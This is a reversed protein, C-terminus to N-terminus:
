DGARPKAPLEIGKITEKKGKRLVVADIKEGGKAAAIMAQFQEVDAPLDKGAWQLLIDNKKFGAKEAPMERLVGVIVLGVDAKLDLQEALVASPKELQVGFRPQADGLRLNFVDFDPLPVVEFRPNQPFIPPPRRAPQAEDAKKLEAEMAKKYEDRAMEIAGRADKDDKLMEISDAFEKLQKDYQVRLDSKPQELRDPFPAVQFEFKRREVQMLGQLKMALEYMKMPNNAKMAEDIEKRLDLIDDLQQRPKKAEPADPAKPLRPAPLAEQASATRAILSCAVLIAFWKASPSLGKM